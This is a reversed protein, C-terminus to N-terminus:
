HRVAGTVAQAERDIATGVSAEETEEKVNVSTALTPTASGTAFLKFDIKAESKGVDSTTVGAARGFMGGLKKGASATKLASIDTYLIFDCQKAKAEAEAESPSSANLRIAEVNGSNIDGILRDRLSEDSVSKGTKNNIAVVGVRIGRRVPSMGPTPKEEIRPLPSVSQDTIDGMAPTYMEQFSHAETYGAPLEFLAADQPQRSLELVEKTSSSMQIGKSSITTTEILPYGLKGTGTNKYRVQDVCGGPMSPRGMGPAGGVRCDIGYQLDVYWGDREIFMADKLCADPSPEMSFTSKVHRATLGFMEKREGTDVTNIVYTVIGGGTRPGNPVAPAPIEGSGGSDGGSMPTIMYKRATENIQVSRKLDCQVISTTNQGGMNMESRQRAGKILTTSQFTQGNQTTKETIRFDSAAPRAPAPASNRPRQAMATVTGLVLFATLCVIQQWLGHNHEKSM